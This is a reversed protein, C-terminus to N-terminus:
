LGVGKLPGYSDFILEERLGRTFGIAQLLKATELQSPEVIATLSYNRAPDINLKIVGNGMSNRGSLTLALKEKDCFIPGALDANEGTMRRIGASLADTTVLGDAVLCGKDQRWRIEKATVRITGEFPMGMLQYRSINSLEFVGDLNQILASQSLLNYTINGAGNATPGNVGLTLHLQGLLARRPSLQFELTGLQMGDLVVREASGNWLTGQLREVVLRDGAIKFLPTALSAPALAIVGGVFALILALGQYFTASKM